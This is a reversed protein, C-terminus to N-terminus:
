VRLLLEAKGISKYGFGSAHQASKAAALHFTAEVM